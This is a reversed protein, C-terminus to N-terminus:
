HGRLTQLNGFNLRFVTHTIGMEVGVQRNNITNEVGLRDVQAVKTSICNYRSLIKNIGVQDATAYFYSEKEINKKFKYNHM